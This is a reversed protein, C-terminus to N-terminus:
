GAAFDALVAIEVRRNRARGDPTDNPAIPRQDSFGTASVRSPPVGLDVLHRLVETARQTSLEWNSRFEGTSIPVDDTHGEVAIRKDFSRLSGAINALISAGGPRLEARGPDFMVQDAVITMVLGRAEQRIGIAGGVGAAAAQETITKAVSDLELKEAVAAAARAEERQLAEEAQEGRTPGAPPAIGPGAGPLLSEGGEVISPESSGGFAASLSGALKEFKALDVSSIAFLMMFLAMLLTLMDAYPIVWAEHNEHEEHEEDLGGGGGSM